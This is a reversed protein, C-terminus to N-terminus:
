RNRISAAASKRRRLDSCFGLFLFSSSSFPSSLLSFRPVFSSLPPLFPFILVCSYVNWHVFRFSCFFFFSLVYSSRRPTGCFSSFLLKSLPTAFDSRHFLFLFIFNRPLQLIYFSSLHFSLPASYDHFLSSSSLSLLSSFLFPFLLFSIPRSPQVAFPHLTQQGQVIFAVPEKQLSNRPAYSAVRMGLSGHLRVTGRRCTSVGPFFRDRPYENAVQTFSGVAVRSKARTENAAAPETVRTSVARAGVDDFTPSRGVCPALMNGNQRVTRSVVM